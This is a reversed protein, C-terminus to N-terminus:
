RFSVGFLLGVYASVPETSSAFAGISRDPQSWYTAETTLGFHGEWRRSFLVRYLLEMRAEAAWDDWAILNPRFGAYGKLEWGVGSSRIMGSIAFNGRLAHDTGKASGTSEVSLGALAHLQREIREIAHGNKLFNYVAHLQLWRAAWREPHSDHQYEVVTGGVGWASDPQCDQSLAAFPSLNEEEGEPGVKCFYLAESELTTIRVRFGGREPVGIAEFGILSLDGMPLNAQLLPLSFRLAGSSEAGPSFRVGGELQPELLRLGMLVERTKRSCLESREPSCPTQLEVAGRPPEEGIEIMSESHAISAVGLGLALSLIGPVFQFSWSGMRNVGAGKVFYIRHTM